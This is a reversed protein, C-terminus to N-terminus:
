MNTKRTITNDKIYSKYDTDDVKRFRKSNFYYNEDVTVMPCGIDICVQGKDSDEVDEVRFYPKSLLYQHYPSKLERIDKNIVVVIDGIKFNSKQPIYDLNAAVDTPTSIYKEFTKLNDM